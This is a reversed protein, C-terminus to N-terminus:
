SFFFFFFTRPSDALDILRCLDLSIRALLDFNKRHKNNAFSSPTSMALELIGKRKCIILLDNFLFLQADEKNIYSNGSSKSVVMFGEKVFRRSPAV